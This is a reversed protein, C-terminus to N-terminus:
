GANRPSAASTRSQGEEWVARRPQSVVAPQAVFLGLCRAKEPKRRRSTFTSTTQRDPATAGEEDLGKNNLGSDVGIFGVTKHDIEM